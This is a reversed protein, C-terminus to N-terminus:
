EERLGGGERGRWIVRRKSMRVEENPQMEGERGREMVGEKMERREGM